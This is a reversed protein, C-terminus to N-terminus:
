AVIYKSPSSKFFRKGMQSKDKSNHTTDLNLNGSGEVGDDVKVVVATGSEIQNDATM